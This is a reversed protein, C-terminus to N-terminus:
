RSAGGFSESDLKAMYEELVRIRDERMLTYNVAFPGGSVWLNGDKDFWRAEVRMEVFPYVVGTDDQLHNFTLTSFTAISSNRLTEYLGHEAAICHKVEAKAMSIADKDIASYLQLM